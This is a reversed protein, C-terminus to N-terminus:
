DFQYKEQFTHYINLLNFSVSDSKLTNEIEKLQKYENSNILLDHLKFALEQVKEM